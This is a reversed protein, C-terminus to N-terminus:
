ERTYHVLDKGILSLVTREPAFVRGGFFGRVFAALLAEDSPADVGAPVDLDIFRSDNYATHNKQNVLRNLTNSRRFTEPIDEAFVIRRRPVSTVDRYTEIGHKVIFIAPLAVAIAAAASWKINAM